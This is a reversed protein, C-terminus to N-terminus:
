QTRAMLHAIGDYSDRFARASMGTFRTFERSAHAQDAYGALAALLAAPQYDAQQLLRDTFARYRMVQIYQKASLGVGRRFMRYLTSASVNLESHLQGVEVGAPDADIRTTAAQLLRQYPSDTPLHAELWRDCAAAPNSALAAKDPLSSLAPDVQVPHEPARPFLARGGWPTFQIGVYHSSGEQEIVMPETGTPLYVDANQRPPQRASFRRGPNGLCFQVTARGNPILVARLPGPPAASVVSWYHEVLGALHEAPAYRRYDVMILAECSRSLAFDM